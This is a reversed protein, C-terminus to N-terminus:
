LLKVEATREPRHTTFWADEVYIDCGIGYSYAPTFGQEEVLRLRNRDCSHQGRRIAEAPTVREALRWVRRAKGYTLAYRTGIEPPTM